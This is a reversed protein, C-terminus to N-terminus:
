VKLRVMKFIFIKLFLQGYQRADLRKVTKSGIKFDIQDYDLHETPEFNAARWLHGKKADGEGGTTPRDQPWIPNPIRGFGSIM